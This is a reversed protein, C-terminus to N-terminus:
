AVKRWEGCGQTEFGKDIRAITVRAPGTPTGNAAIDDLEGSFGKLRAWYCSEGGKTSYTGPKVQQPVAYQGDGFTVPAPATTDQPKPATTTAAATADAKLNAIARECQLRDLHHTIEACNDTFYRREVVSTVTVTKTAQPDSSGGAGSAGIIGGAVFGVLLLFWGRKYWPRAPPPAPQQATAGPPPGWYPPPQASGPQGGPAPPPQTWGPGGPQTPDQNSM